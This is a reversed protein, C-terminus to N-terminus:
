ETENELESLSFDNQIEFMLGRGGLIRQMQYGHLDEM